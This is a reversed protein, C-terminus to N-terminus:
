DLTTCKGAGAGRVRVVSNRKWAVFGRADVSIGIVRRNHELSMVTLMSSRWRRQKRAMASSCFRVRAAARRWRVWGATERM